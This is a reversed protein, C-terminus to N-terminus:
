IRQVVDDQEQVRDPRCRDTLAPVVITDDPHLSVCVPAGIALVRARAAHHSPQRLSVSVNGPLAVFVRLSEGQYVIETVRGALRNMDNTSGEGDLLLKETQIALVLD